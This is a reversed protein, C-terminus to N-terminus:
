QAFSGTVGCSRDCVPHVRRLLRQKATPCFGHLGAARVRRPVHVWHSKLWVVTRM